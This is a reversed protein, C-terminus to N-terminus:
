HHRHHQIDNVRLGTVGYHDITEEWSHFEEPSLAYRECAREISIIGDRVAAVVEAKHQPMWRKLSPSPLDAMRIPRGNSDKVLHIVNRGDRAM